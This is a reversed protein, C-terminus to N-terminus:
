CIEPEPLAGLLEPRRQRIRVEVERLDILYPAVPGYYDTVPGIQRFEIGLMRQLVRVLSREMAAYWYRVGHRVSCAHMQMFLNCLITPSRDPQRRYSASVMLRSIEACLHAPPSAEGELTLCHNQFPFTGIPDPRVLRVYGAVDGGDDCSAFHFSHLDHEDSECGEPYDVADLFGQELCYIQFRLEHVKRMLALDRLPDVKRTVFGSLSPERKIVNLSM